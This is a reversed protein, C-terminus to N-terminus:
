LKTTIDFSIVRRIKDSANPSTFHLINSPFIVLDGEEAPPSAVDTTSKINNQGVVFHTASHEKNDYDFYLVASLNCTGHTHVSHFDGKGYQVTWIDEIKFSDLKLEEGFEQLDEKFISLFDDIYHRPNSRDSDFPSHIVSSRTFVQHKMATQMKAKKDQWNKVKYTYYPVAYLINIM